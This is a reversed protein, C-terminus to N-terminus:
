PGILLSFGDAYLDDFSTYWVREARRTENGLADFYNLSGSLIGWAVTYAFVPAGSDGNWAQMQTTGKQRIEVYNPQCAVFPPTNSCGNGGYNPAASTSYVEGCQQGSSPGTTQGYWCIYSGATSTLKQDTTSKTRRGTLTRIDGNNAKFKSEFMQATSSLFMYDKYASFQGGQDTLAAGGSVAGYLPMSPRCHGATFVGRMTGKQGSFASTCMLSSSVNYLSQGGSIARLAAKGPVMELRLPVNQAANINSLMGDLETQRSQPGYVSLVVEGSREDYAVSQLDPFSKKAQVAIAQLRGRAFNRGKAKGGRYEVTLELPRGSTMLGPKDASIGIGHKPKSAQGVLNFILKFEAGNDFYVGALDDGLQTSLATIEAESNNMILLRREAEDQSVGYDQAYRKADNALAQEQSTVADSQAQATSSILFCCIGALIIRM